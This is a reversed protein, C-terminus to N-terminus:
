LRWILTGSATRSTLPQVALGYSRVESHVASGRSASHLMTRDVVANIIMLSQQTSRKCILPFHLDASVVTSSRIRGQPTVFTDPLHYSVFIM